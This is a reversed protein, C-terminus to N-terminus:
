LRWFKNPPIIRRATSSICKEATNETLTFILDPGPDNPILPAHLPEDATLLRRAFLILLFM